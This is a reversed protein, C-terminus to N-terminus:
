PWRIVSGHALLCNVNQSGVALHFGKDNMGLFAPRESRNDDVHVDPTQARFKAVYSALHRHDAIVHQQRVKVVALTADPVLPASASPRIIENGLSSAARWASTRAGARCRDFAVTTASLAASSSKM